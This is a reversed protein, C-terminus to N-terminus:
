RTRISRQLPLRMIIQAMFKIVLHVCPWKERILRNWQCSQITLHAGWPDRAKFKSSTSASVVVSLYFQREFCCLGIAPFVGFFALLTCIVSGFMEIAIVTHQITDSVQLLMLYFTWTNSAPWLTLLIPISNASKSFGTLLAVELACDSAM